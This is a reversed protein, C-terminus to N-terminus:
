IQVGLDRLYTPISSAYVDSRMKVESSKAAKEREREREKERGRENGCAM